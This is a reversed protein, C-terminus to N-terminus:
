ANFRASVFSDWSLYRHSCPYRDYSNRHRRFNLCMMRFQYKMLPLMCIKHFIYASSPFCKHQHLRRSPDKLIQKPFLSTSSPVSKQGPNECNKSSFHISFMIQMNSVIFYMDTDGDKLIKLFISSLVKRESTCHCNEHDCHRLTAELISIQKIKMRDSELQFKQPKQTPVCKM